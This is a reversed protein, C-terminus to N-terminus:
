FGIPFKLKELFGVQRFWIGVNVSYFREWISCMFELRNKSFRITNSVNRTPSDNKM